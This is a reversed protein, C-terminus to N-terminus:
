KVKINKKSLKTSRYINIDRKYIQIIITERELGVPMSDSIFVLICCLEDMENSKEM